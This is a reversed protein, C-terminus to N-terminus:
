PIHVIFGELAVIRKCPAFLSIRGTKRSTVLGVYIRTCLKAKLGRLRGPAELVGLMVAKMELHLAQLGDNQANQFEM